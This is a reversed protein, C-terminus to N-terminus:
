KSQSEARGEAGPDFLMAVQSGYIPYEVRCRYGRFAGGDWGLRACAHRVLELYRPVDGSRCSSLGEGLPVAHELVDLVDIDRARDNADAVGEFSTDYVRVEPDSGPYVGRHVFVDLQLVEAPISVEAFMYGKRGSGAAVTRRM